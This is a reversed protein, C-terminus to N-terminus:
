KGLQKTEQVLRKVLAAIEGDFAKQWKQFDHNKPQPDDIRQWSKFTEKALSRVRKLQRGIAADHKRKRANFKKLSRGALVDMGTLM